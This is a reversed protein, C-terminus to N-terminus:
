QNGKRHEDQEMIFRNNKKVDARIELLIERQERAERMINVDTDQLARIQADHQELKLPTVYYTKALGSALGVVMAAIAGFAAILKLPTFRGENDM